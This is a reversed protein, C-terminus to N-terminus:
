TRHWIHLVRDAIIGVIIGLLAGGLIDSPWHVGAIVRTIGNILALAYFLVGLRRNHLWITTALSFFFVAHGSPFSGGLEHPILPTFGLEEFPRQRPFIYRIAPTISFRATLASILAFGLVTKRGIHLRRERDTPIILVIFAAVAVFYSFSSAFFATVVDFLASRGLFEHLWALLSIDWKM